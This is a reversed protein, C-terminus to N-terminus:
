SMRTSAHIARATRAYWDGDEQAAGGERFLPTLGRAPGLPPRGRAPAERLLVELLAGPPLRVVDEDDVVVVREPLRVLRSVDAYRVRLKHAIAERLANLTLAGFPVERCVDDSPTKIQFPPPPPEEELWAPLRADGGGTADSRRRAAAVDGGDLAPAHSDALASAVADATMVGAAQMEAFFRRRLADPAVAREAAAGSARRRQTLRADLLIGARVDLTAEVEPAGLGAAAGSRAGVAAARLERWALRATHAPASADGADAAAGHAGQRALYERLAGVDIRRNIRGSWVVRAARADHTAWVCAAVTAAVAGWAVMSLAFWVLPKALLPQIIYADAWQTHVVSWSGTLRDLVGFALLGSFLVTLADLQATAREADRLARGCDAAAAAVERAIRVGRADSAADALHRLKAAEVRTSDALTAMDACRARLEERLARTRLAGALRRAPESGAGDDGGGGGGAASSAGDMHSHHATAYGDASSADDLMDDGDGSGPPPLSAELFAVAQSLQGVDATVGAIASRLREVASPEVERVSAAAATRVRRVADGVGGLRAFVNRAFADRAALALWASLAREHAAAHPGALLVGASGVILVDAPGLDWAGVTDGLVQRLENEYVGRDLYQAAPLKPAIRAAMLVNVKDRAQTQGQFVTAMVDGATASTLADLIRSSDSHVDTLLRALSDLSLHARVRDLVAEVRLGHLVAGDARVHLGFTQIQAVGAAEPFHIAAEANVFRAPRSELVAVRALGPAVSCRGVDEDVAVHGHAGAHKADGGADEADTTTALFGGRCREGTGLQAALEALGSPGMPVWEGVLLSVDSLSIASDMADRVTSGRGAAEGARHANSSLPAAGAAGAPRLCAPLYASAVYSVDEIDTIGSARTVTANRLVFRSELPLWVVHLLAGGWSVADDVAVASAPPMRRRLLAVGAASAQYCLGPAHASTRLRLAHVAGAEVLDDVDARGEQSVNLYHRRGAVRVSAPAYDYDLVKSAICEYTLVTLSLARV